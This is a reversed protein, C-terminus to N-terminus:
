VAAYAINIQVTGDKKIAMKPHLLYQEYFRDQEKDTMQIWSGQLVSKMIHRFNLPQDSEGALIRDVQEQIKRVLTSTKIKYTAATSFDDIYCFPVGHATYTDVIALSTKGKELMVLFRAGVIQDILAWYDSDSAVLIVADVGETYIECSTRVALTMDVQSKHENVRKVVEHEIQLATKGESAVRLNWDIVTKWEPTTYESDFLIVKSVKSLHEAPLGSLAGALKVADANECDVMIVCKRCSSLLETLNRKTNEGVNRVLSLNEFRDRNHEYVLEIFKEDNYLINGKGEAGDSIAEWNIWCRYPYRNWDSNYLEGAKKIGGKKTGNPMIFIPKIYKWLVWEPFLSSVRDICNSLKRNIAILYENIDPRGMYIEVGDKSLAEYADTPILKPVTGINACNNNFESVIASYNREMAARIRCLNRVIRADKGQELKEYTKKLFPADGSGFYSKDIGILYAMLSVLEFSPNKYETYAPKREESFARADEDPGANNLFVGLDSLSNTKFGCERAEKPESTNQKKCM